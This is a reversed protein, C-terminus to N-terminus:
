KNPIRIKQGIRLRRADAGSMGNLKLISSSSVGYRAAVGSITDGSRITYTRGSSRSSSSSSKKSSSGSRGSSKIHRLAKPTYPVKITRGAYITDGKIGSARRIASVTTGCREAILSLNDGSRVKYVLLTPKTIKPTKKTRKVPKKKTTPKKKAKPKAKPTSTTVVSTTDAVTTTMVPTPDLPVPDVAIPADKVIVPENQSSAVSGSSTASTEGPEPIAFNNRDYVPTNPGASVQAISDGGDVWPPIMNEDLRMESAPTAELNGYFNEDTPSSCSSMVLLM